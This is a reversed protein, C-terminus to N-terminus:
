GVSHIPRDCRSHQAQAMACRTGLRVSHAAVALVASVLRSVRGSDPPSGGPVNRRQDLIIYLLM